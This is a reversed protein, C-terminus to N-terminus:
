LSNVQIRDLVLSQSAAFLKVVEEHSTTKLGLEELDSLYQRKSRNFQDDDKLDVLPGFQATFCQQIAQRFEEEQDM